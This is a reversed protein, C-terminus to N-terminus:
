RLPPSPAPGDMSIVFSNSKCPENALNSLTASTHEVSNNSTFPTQHAKQIFHEVCQWAGRAAVRKPEHPLPHLATGCHAPTVIFGSRSGVTTLKRCAAVYKSRKNRRAVSWIRYFHPTVREREAEKKGRQQHDWIVNHQETICVHRRPGQPTCTM